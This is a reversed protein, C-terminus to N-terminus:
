TTFTFYLIQSECTGSRNNQSCAEIYLFGETLGAPLPSLNIPVYLGQGPVLSSQGHGVPQACAPQSEKATAEFPANNTTGSNLYSGPPGEVSYYVSELNVNGQNYLIFSVRWDNGCFWTINYDVEFAVNAAPASTPAQTAAPANTPPPAQTPNNNSPQPPANTAPPPPFGVVQISSCDGSTTTLPASVWASDNLQWWSRDGNHGTIKASVGGDLQSVTPWATGPGTRMNVPKNATAICDQPAAIVTPLSPLTAEQSVAELTPSPTPTGGGPMNCAMAALILALGAIWSRSKKKSNMIKEVEKESLLSLYM